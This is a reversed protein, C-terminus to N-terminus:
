DALLMSNYAHEGAKIQFEGGKVNLSSIKCLTPHIRMEPRGKVVVRSM